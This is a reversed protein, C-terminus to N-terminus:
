SNKEIENLMARGNLACDYAYENCKKSGPNEKRAKYKQNMFAFKSFFADSHWCHISYFDDVSKDSSAFFDLKPTKTINLKSSNIALYGAYMSVVGAFWKPWKGEHESFKEKLLYKCWALTKVSETIMTESLAFWTSGINHIAQNPLGKQVLIKALKATSQASAYGGTSVIIENDKLLLNKTSPCLFTDVDIRLSYKYKKIHDICKASVFPAYSNVYGYPRKSYVYKFDDTDSLEPVEIFECHPMNQSALKNKIKKPCAVLFDFREYLDTKQTVSYYLGFFQELLNRKGDPVYVIIISDKKM